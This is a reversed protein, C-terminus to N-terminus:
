SGKWDNWWEGFEVKVKLNVDISRQYRWLCVAYGIVFGILLLMVAVSFVGIWNSM